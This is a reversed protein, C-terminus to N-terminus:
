FTGDAEANSNVLWNRKVSLVFSLEECMTPMNRRRCFLTELAVHWFLAVLAERQSSLVTSFESQDFTTGSVRATSMKKESLDCRKPEEDFALSPVIQLSHM